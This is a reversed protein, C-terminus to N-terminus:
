NQLAARSGRPTRGTLSPLLSLTALAAWLLGFGALQVPAITASLVLWNLVLATAPDALEALTAYSARTHQLGHYYLLMGALGPLAALLALRAPHQAIGALADGAEGRALAVVALFPLALLYRAATVTGSSLGGLVLRGLVTAGGFLAVAALALGIATVDERSTGEIPNLTGFSLLYAGVVAFAFCPYYSPRPREGLLVAALSLSVLPQANLLLAVTTPNGHRFAATFLVMGLGGSGWAIGLLALWERRSLRALQRRAALLAPLAYVALLLYQALVIASAPMVAVLPQRLAPGCGWLMAGLAVLALGSRGTVSAARIPADGRSEAGARTPWGRGQPATTMPANEVM